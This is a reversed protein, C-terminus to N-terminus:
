RSGGGPNTYGLPDCYPAVDGTRIGELYLDEGFQEFAPVSVRGDVRSAIRALLTETSLPANTALVIIERHDGPAGSNSLGVPFAWIRGFSSSLTKHLRRFPKSRDGTVSGHFNYTLVGDEALHALAARHFEETLLPAPVREDDFADVIIIDYADPSEHLYTRGDGVYVRLREDDPLAFSTRAMEAIQPEIEVADIHMAPYDRWMRKVVTGGGLGIMLARTAEPVAALALHLYGPYDFDTEFPSDVYMSSQEIRGIRLTRISGNETVRIHPAEPMGQYYAAAARNM